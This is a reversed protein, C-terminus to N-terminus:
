FTEYASFADIAEFAAEMREFRAPIADHLRAAMSTHLMELVAFGSVRSSFLGEVASDVVLAVDTYRMLPNLRRDTLLITTGGMESFFKMLQLSIASCRHYAVCLLVTASGAGALQHGLNGANPELLRVNDRYHQALLTFFRAMTEATGGGTVYVTRSTDTLHTVAQNVMQPDLTGMSRCLSQTVQQLYEHAFAPTDPLAPSHERIYRSLPVELADTVDARLERMFEPFGSYGLRRVFRTVTAPGVKALESLDVLNGFAVKRPDKELLSALRRESPSLRELAEIRKLVKINRM